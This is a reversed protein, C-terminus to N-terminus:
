VLTDVTVDGIKTRCLPGPANKTKVVVKQILLNKGCKKEQSKRRKRRKKGEKRFGVVVCYMV